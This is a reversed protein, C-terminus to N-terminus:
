PTSISLPDFVYARGNEDVSDSAVDGPWRGSGLVIQPNGSPATMLRAMGWGLSDKKDEGRFEYRVLGDSAQHVTVSGCADGGAHPKYDPNEDPSEPIAPCTVGDGNPCLGQSFFQVEQFCLSACANLADRPPTSFNRSCIGIDQAGVGDLDGFAKVKWGVMERADFGQLQWNAATPPVLTPQDPWEWVTARGLSRGLSHMTLDTGWAPFELTTGGMGDIYGPPDLLTTTTPTESFMPAGVVLDWATGQSPSLPDTRTSISFGFGEGYDPTDTPCLFPASQSDIFWGGQLTATAPSASLGTGEGAVVIGEGPGNCDVSYDSIGNTWRIWRYQPAGVALDIHGDDNLDCSGAIAHGVRDGGSGGWECAAPTLGGLLLDTGAGGAGVTLIEQGAAGIAAAVEAGSILYCHGPDFTTESPNPTRIDEGPAGIAFDETGDGDMDGIREVAFGFCQPGPANGALNPPLLVASARTVANFWGPFSCTSPNLPNGCAQCGQKCIQPEALWDSGTWDQFGEGSDFGSSLFLYVVGAWPAEEDPINFFPGRPAGVIFEDYGDGDLDGIATVSFGFMDGFNSSILRREAADDDLCITGSAGAPAGAVDGRYLVVTGTHTRSTEPINTKLWAGATGGILLDDFFSGEPAQSDDPDPEPLLNAGDAIAAGRHPGKLTPFGICM